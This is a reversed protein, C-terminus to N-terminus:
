AAPVPGALMTAASKWFRPPPFSLVDGEALERDGDHMRVTPSRFDLGHTQGLFLLEPERQDVLM